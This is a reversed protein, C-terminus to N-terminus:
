RPTRDARDVDSAVECGKLSVLIGGANAENLMAM